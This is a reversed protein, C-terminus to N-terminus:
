ASAASPQNGGMVPHVSPPIAIRANQPMWKQRWSETPGLGVVVRMTEYLIRFDLWLSRNEVYLTDYYIWEQFDTQSRDRSRAVQWLGTIGPRVSLRARRWPPCCQNENDPSPRPGVLSMEGRLVNILQPLEDINTKRLIGGITTVRPDNSLKFQPGDVQNRKMLKRKVADANIIMTRFKICDFEGGGRGQRRHYFLVPGRSTLKIAAAVLAFLPMMAILGLAAGLVDIVRKVRTAATSPVVLPNNDMECGVTAPETADEFLEAQPGVVRNHCHSSAPVDQGPLVISHSVVAGAGVTAGDGLSAPGVIIAGNGIRVSRGIEIPGHLRASGVGPWSMHGDQFGRERGIQEILSLLAEIPSSFGRVARNIVPHVSEGARRVRNEFYDILDAFTVARCDRDPRFSRRSLVAAIPNRNLVICSSDTYRRVTRRVIGAPDTSIQEQCYQDYCADYFVTMGARSDHHAQQMSKIDVWPLSVGNVLVWDGGFGAVDTQGWTSDTFSKGYAHVRVNRATLSEVRSSMEPPVILETYRAAASLFTVYQNMAARSGLPLVLAKHWRELSADTAPAVVITVRPNM